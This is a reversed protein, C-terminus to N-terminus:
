GENILAGIASCKLSIGDVLSCYIAGCVTVSAGDRCWADSESARMLNALNSAVHRPDLGQEHERRYAAWAHVEERSGISPRGSHRGCAHVTHM